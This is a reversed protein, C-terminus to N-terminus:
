QFPAHPSPDDLKSLGYFAKAAARRLAATRAWLLTPRGRGRVSLVEPLRSSLGRDPLSRMQRKHAWAPSGLAIEDGPRFVRAFRHRPPDCLFVSPPTMNRRM